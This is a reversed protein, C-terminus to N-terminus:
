KPELILNLNGPKRPFDVVSQAMMDARLLTKLPAPFKNTSHKGLMYIGLSKIGFVM